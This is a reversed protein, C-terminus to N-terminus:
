LLPVEALLCVLGEVLQRSLLVDIAAVETPNISGGRAGEGRKIMEVSQERGKQCGSTSNGATKEALSDLTSGLVQVFSSASSNPEGSGNPISSTGDSGQGSEKM